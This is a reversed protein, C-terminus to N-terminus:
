RKVDTPLTEHWLTTFPINASTPVESTMLIPLCLTNKDGQLIAVTGQMVRYYPGLCLKV